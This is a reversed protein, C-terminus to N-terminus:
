VRLADTRIRRAEDYTATRLTAEEITFGRSVLAVREEGLEVLAAWRDPEAVYASAQHAVGDVIVQAPTWDRGSLREAEDATLRNLEDGFADPHEMLVGVQAVQNACWSRIRDTPMEQHVLVHLYRIPALEEHHFRARLGKRAEPVIVAEVGLPDITLGQPRGTWRSLSWEAEFDPVYLM